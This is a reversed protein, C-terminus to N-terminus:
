SFYLSKQEESRSLRTWGSTFVPSFPKRGSIPVPFSCPFLLLCLLSFADLLLFNIAQKINSPLMDYPEISKGREPKTM